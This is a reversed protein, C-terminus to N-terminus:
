VRTNDVDVIIQQRRRLGARQRDRHRHRVEERLGAPVPTRVEHQVDQRAGDSVAAQEDFQDSGKLHSCRQHKNPNNLNTVKSPLMKKAQITALRTCAASDERSVVQEM